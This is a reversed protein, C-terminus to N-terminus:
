EWVVWIMGLHFTDHQIFGTLLKYYDYDYGPVRKQLISDDTKELLEIIKAQKEKLNLILNQWNGEEVESKNGWNEEETTLDFKFNGELKQILFERWAVLHFVYQAISYKTFERKKTVETAKLGNLFEMLSPGHWADGRFVSDLNDIIKSLEKNSM